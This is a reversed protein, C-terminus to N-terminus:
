KLLFYPASFFLMLHGLGSSSDIIELRAQPPVVECACLVPSEPQQQGKGAEFGLGWPRRPSEGM